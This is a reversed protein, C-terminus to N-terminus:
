VSSCEDWLFKSALGSSNRSSTLPDPRSSGKVKCCLFNKRFTWRGDDQWHQTRLARFPPGLEGTQHALSFDCGGLGEGESGNGVSSSWSPLIEPSVLSIRPSPQGAGAGQTCAHLHQHHQPHRPSSPPSPGQRRVAGTPSVKRRLLMTVTPHSHVDLPCDGVCPHLRPSSNSLLPTGSECVLM